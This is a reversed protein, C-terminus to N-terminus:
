GSNRIEFDPSTKKNNIQRQTTITPPTERTFFTILISAFYAFSALLVILTILGGLNTRKKEEGRAVKFM